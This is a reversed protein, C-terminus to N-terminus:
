PKLQKAVNRRKWRKQHFVHFWENYLEQFEDLAPVEDLEFPIKYVVGDHTEFRTKTVRIIIKPLKNKM